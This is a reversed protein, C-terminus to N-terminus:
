LIVLNFNFEKDKLFSFMSYIKKKKLLKSVACMGVLAETPFTCDGTNDANINTM